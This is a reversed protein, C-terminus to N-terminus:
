TIRRLLVAALAVCAVIPLAVGVAAHVEYVLTMPAFLDQLYKFGLGVLIGV